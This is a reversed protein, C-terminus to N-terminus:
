KDRNRGITIIHTDWDNAVRVEMFNIIFQEKLRLALIFSKEGLNNPWLIYWQM